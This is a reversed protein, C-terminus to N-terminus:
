SEGDQLTDMKALAAILCGRCLYATESDYDPERGLEIIDVGDTGCESCTPQKTYQAGLHEEVRTPTQEGAMLNAWKAEPQRDWDAYTNWGLTPNFYHGRYLEAADRAVSERTYVKMTM